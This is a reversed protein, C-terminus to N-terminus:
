RAAAEGPGSAARGPLHAALEDVVSLVGEAHRVLVALLAECESAPIPAPDLISLVGVARGARRFPAVVIADPRYGSEVAIDHAFHESGSLDPVIVTASTRLAQGAIGTDAPFRAGLLEEGGRGAIAEFVLEGAREDLVAVSAHQARLLLRGAEAVATFFATRLDRETTPSASM